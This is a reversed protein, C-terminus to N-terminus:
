ITDLRPHRKYIYGVLRVSILVFATIVVSMERMSTESGWGRVKKVSGPPAMRDIMAADEFEADAESQPEM